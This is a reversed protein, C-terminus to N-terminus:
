AAYECSLLDDIADQETKGWGRLGEEEQGEYYAVWDNGRYAADRDPFIYIGDKNASTPEYAWYWKYPEKTESM